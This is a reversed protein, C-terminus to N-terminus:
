ISTAPLKYRSIKAEPTASPFLPGRGIIAASSRAAMAATDYLGHMLYSNPLASSVDEYTPADGSAEVSGIDMIAMAVVSSNVGDGVAKLNGLIVFVSERPEMVDVEWSFMEEVDAPAFYSNASMISINRTAPIGSELAM